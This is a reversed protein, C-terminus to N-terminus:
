RRTIAARLRWTALGLLVIAYCALVGLQPLIDTLTGDHRILESFGSIAWYHPTLRAVSQMSAPFFEIPMMAGGLAALGLSIVVAAGGAQEANRFSSGMLMAAGAGVASFALLIAIVGLPNGWSVGFVVLTVVVIYLGQVMSTGYRGAAEGLLIARVTTPTSLMRQTIGLQRTLILASAGSLATIFMFLVLQQPAGIDFRGISAPLTAEGQTTISVTVGPVVEALNRAVPLATEFSEGTEFAAFSAAGVPTMVEAIAATVLSRLEVGFGDPRAVYEFLVPDGATATADMEAPLFVGASVDGREVATILRARDDYHALQLGEYAELEAIVADAIEGQGANHLGVVPTFGGGFQAGILLILALPFIFVFFINSRERLMRKVNAWAIALVKM